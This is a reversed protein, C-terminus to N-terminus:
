ATGNSGDRRGLRLAGRTQFRLEFGSPRLLDV